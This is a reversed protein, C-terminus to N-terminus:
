LKWTERYCFKVYRKEEGRNKDMMKNDARNRHTDDDTLHWWSSERRLWQLKRIHFYIEYQWECIREELIGHIQSGM